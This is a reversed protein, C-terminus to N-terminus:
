LNLIITEDDPRNIFSKVFSYGNNNLKFLEWDNPYRKLLAGM